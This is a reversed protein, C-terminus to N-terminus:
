SGLVRGLHARVKDGFETTGVPQSGPLPLDATRIGDELTANIASEIANAEGDLGFSIRLMMAASLIAGCPNAKNQGAIDPASGHIPEYMGFQVASTGERIPKRGSLSASPLMGLSGALVAAEDSLIDGFMNEMVMVDYDTPRLLLRMACSDVLAHELQTDPHREAVENAITRWLRSSAMVNAKDVSTVKNRRGKALEFGLDILRQIEIESYVLTDVASRGESTEMQESPKGFYIGGTLERVILLDTGRVIEAKMPSADVLAELVKIPRLNAFLGLRQRLGLLGAEPRIEPAVNEWKPGGVAGLLVSDSNAALDADEDRLPVGHADIAAGGFAAESWVFEVPRSSAILDLTQRAEHIVEPGVGDGPLCLIHFTQATM